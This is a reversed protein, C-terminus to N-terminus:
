LLLAGRGLKKGLKQAVDDRSRLGCVAQQAPQSQQGQILQQSQGRELSTSLRSSGSRSRM